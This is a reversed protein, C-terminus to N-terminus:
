AKWRLKSIILWKKRDVIDEESRKESWPRVTGDIVNMENIGEDDAVLGKEEAIRFFHSLVNRGTHLGAVVLVRTTFTHDLLELM